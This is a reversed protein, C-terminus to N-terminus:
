PKDDDAREEAADLEAMLEDWSLPPGLIFFDRPADDDEVPPQQFFQKITDDGM